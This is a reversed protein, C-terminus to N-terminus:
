QKDKTKPKPLLQTRVLKEAERYNGVWTIRQDRKFWTNQRKAYHWIAQGLDSMLQDKNIKNQLFLSVYRYELGLENMRRYTLGTQHLKKVEGILGAKLRAKLRTTIKKRLLKPNLKIGIQLWHYNSLTSSPQGTLPPTQGLAKAVEIARILRRPNHQDIIKARTPDLKQLVQYLEATTKKSLGQRLRYNPPVEPLVMDDIVARLYFGTGGCLIPLKGGATVEAIKNQALKQYQAVTFQLRPNAISLLHHSIGLMEKKTVKGTGLDLGRYIQRSDASIVEGNFKKALRIALSSKGSSTPGVIAVALTMASM